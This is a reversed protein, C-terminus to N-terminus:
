RINLVLQGPYKLSLRVLCNNNHCVESDTDFEGGGKAVEPETQNMATSRLRPGEQVLVMAGHISRNKLM